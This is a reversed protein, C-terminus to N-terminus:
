FIQQFSSVKDFSTSANGNSGIKLYSDYVEAGDADWGFPVSGATRLATLDSICENYADSYLIGLVNKGIM